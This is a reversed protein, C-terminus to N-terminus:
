PLSNIGSTISSLISLTIDKSIPFIITSFSKYSNYVCLKVEQPVTEIDILRGFTKEDIRKRANYELLNFPTPELTGGLSQYETYTLYQGEFM